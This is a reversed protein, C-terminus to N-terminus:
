VWFPKQSRSVGYNHVQVKHFGVGMSRGLKCFKYVLKPDKYGWRQLSGLRYTTVTCSLWLWSSLVRRRRRMMEGDRGGVGM